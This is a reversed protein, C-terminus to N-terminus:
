RLDGMPTTPTTTNAARRAKMRALIQADTPPEWQHWGPGGKSPPMWRQMHEREPIRCWRCGGPEILGAAM